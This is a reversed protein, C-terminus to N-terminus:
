LHRANRYLMHLPTLLTHQKARAELQENIRGARDIAVGLALTFALLVALSLARIDFLSKSRMTLDVSKIKGLVRDKM